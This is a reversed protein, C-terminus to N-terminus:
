PIINEKCWTSPLSHGDTVYLVNLIIWITYIRCVSLHTFSILNQIKNLSHQIIFHSHKDDDTSAFNNTKHHTDTIVALKSAKNIMVNLFESVICRGISKFFEKQINIYCRLVGQLINILRLNIWFSKLTTM